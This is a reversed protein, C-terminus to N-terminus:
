RHQQLPLLSLRQPAAVCISHHCNLPRRAPLVVGEGGWILSGAGLAARSTLHRFRGQLAATPSNIQKPFFNGQLSSKVTHSQLHFNRLGRDIDPAKQKVKWTKISILLLHNGGWVCVCGVFTAPCKTVRPPKTTKNPKKASILM